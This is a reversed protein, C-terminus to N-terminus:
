ERSRGLPFSRHASYFFAQRRRTAIHMDINQVHYHVVQNDKEAIKKKGRKEERETQKEGEREDVKEKADRRPTYFRSLHVDKSHHGKISRAM